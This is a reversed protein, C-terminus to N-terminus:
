FKKNKKKKKYEKKGVGKKGSSGLVWLDGFVLLSESEGCVGGDEGVYKEGESGMVEGVGASEDM